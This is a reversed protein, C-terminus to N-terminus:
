LDADTLGAERMISRQTDIKLPRNGHVPVAIPRRAGPRNYVHHSGRIRARTWGKGELIRCMESGSVPKM